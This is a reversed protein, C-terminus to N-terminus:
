LVVVLDIPSIVEKLKNLNMKLADSIWFWDKFFVVCFFSVMEMYGTAMGEKSKMDKTGIYPVFTDCSWPSYQATCDPERFNEFAASNEEVYQQSNLPVCLKPYSTM